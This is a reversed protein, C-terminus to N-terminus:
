GEVVERFATALTPEGIRHRLDAYADILSGGAGSVEITRRGIRIRAILRTRAGSAGTWIVDVDGAIGLQRQLDAAATELFQATADDIPTEAM